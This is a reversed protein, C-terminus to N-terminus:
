VNIAEEIRVKSSYKDMIEQRDRAYDRFDSIFKKDGFTISRWGGRPGTLIEKVKGYKKVAEDVTLRKAEVYWKGYDACELSYGLEHAARSLDNWEPGLRRTILWGWRIPEGCYGDYLRPGYAGLVSEFGKPKKPEKM